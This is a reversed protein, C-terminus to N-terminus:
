VLDVRVAYAAVAARSEVGLKRRINKAHVRATHPSIFLMRAIERDSHGAALLRLVDLERPTIGHGITARQEGHTKDERPKVAIALAETSAQHVSLGRGAKWAAAFVAPDLAARAAGLTTDVRAQLAHALPIGTRERLATAAGLLRAARIPDDGAAIGALGEWCEAIAGTSDGARQFRHLADALLPAARAADGQIRVVEGLSLLAIAAYRQEGATEAFAVAEELLVTARPYDGSLGVTLGLNGLVGGVEVPDSATRHLALSEEYWSIATAWEEQAAAVNGLMSCARALGSQNGSLKWLPLSEEACAVASPYEAQLFAFYSAWVLAEARIAPSASDGAALARALWSRAESVGQRAMWFHQLATALRLALTPDHAIEWALAARLNDRERQLRDLYRELGAATATDVAIALSLFHEAHRRGLSDTENAASVQELGFERIAELMLFRPEGSVVERRILHHELLRGLGNLVADPAGGPDHRGIVAEAAEADCGGAFVALGRFLRQDAPSLLDYSWGIADRLTRHRAAANRPGRTLVSLRGDLRAALAPPSLVELRAAALEIALPLGELRACIAAIAAANDATLAFAPDVELARALFLAVSPNKAMRELPPLNIPDPVALPPTPFLREGNIRLRVRSTILASINPCACLLHGIDAAVNLLHEFNDLVLLLQQEGLEEILRELLPRDGQDRIALVESLASLVLTADHLPALSLFVVGDAFNDVLEHATAIALRTKGIGATGTLTLLRTHGRLLAAAEAIERNRGVLSTLPTPPRSMRLVPRAIAVLEAKDTSVVTIQSFM